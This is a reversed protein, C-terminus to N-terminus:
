MYKNSGHKHKRKDFSQIKLDLDDDFKVEEEFEYYARKIGNVQRMIKAYIKGIKRVIVPLDKPNLLVIAVVLVTFIESLGLGFM